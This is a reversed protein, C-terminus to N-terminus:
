PSFIIIPFPGTGRTPYDISVELNKNRAGDHLIASPIVGVPSSGMDFGYSPSFTPPTAPPPVVGQGFGAAAILSFTLFLRKM